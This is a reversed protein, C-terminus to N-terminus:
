NGSENKREIKRLMEEVAGRVLVTPTVALKEAASKIRIKFGRSARFTVRQKKTQASM